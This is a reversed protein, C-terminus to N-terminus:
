EFGATVVHCPLIMASDNSRPKNLSSAPPRGRKSIAIDRNERSDVTETAHGDATDNRRAIRSRAAM